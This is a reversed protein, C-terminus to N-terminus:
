RKIRRLAGTTRVQASDDGFRMLLAPTVLSFSM